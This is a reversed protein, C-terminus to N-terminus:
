GDRRVEGKAPQAIPRLRHGRHHAYERTRRERHGVTGLWAVRYEIFAFFALLPFFTWHVRVDIGSLRGIKFAGGMLARWEDYGDSRGSTYCHPTILAHRPAVYLTTFRGHRLSVFRPLLTALPM